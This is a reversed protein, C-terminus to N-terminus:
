VELVYENTSDTRTTSPYSSYQNMSELRLIVAILRGLSRLDVGLKLLFLFLDQLLLTCKTGFFLRALCPEPQSKPSDSLTKRHLRSLLGAPLWRLEAVM